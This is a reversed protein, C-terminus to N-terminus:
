IVLFEFRKMKFTLPDRNKLKNCYLATYQLILEAGTNYPVIYFTM